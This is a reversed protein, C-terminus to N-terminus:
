FPLEPETKYLEKAEEETECQILDTLEEIKEEITDTGEQLYDMLTELNEMECSIDDMAATLMEAINQVQEVRNMVGMAVWQDIHLGHQQKNETIQM